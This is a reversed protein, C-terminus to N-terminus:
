TLVHLQNRLPPEARGKTPRDSRRPHSSPTGHMCCIQQQTMDLPNYDGHSHALLPIYDMEPHM